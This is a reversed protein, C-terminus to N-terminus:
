DGHEHSAPGVPLRHALRVLRQRAQGDGVLAANEGRVPSGFVEGGENAVPLLVADLDEDRARSPRRVQRAGDRRM